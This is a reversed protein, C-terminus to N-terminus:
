DESLLSRRHCLLSRFLHQFKQRCFRDIFEAFYQNCPSMFSELTPNISISKNEPQYSVQSLMLFRNEQNISNLLNTNKEKFSGNFTM